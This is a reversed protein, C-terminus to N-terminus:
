HRNYINVTEIKIYVYRFINVIILNFESDNLFLRTKHISSLMWCQVNNELFIYIVLVTNQSYFEVNLM